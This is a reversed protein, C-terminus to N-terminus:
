RCFAAASILKKIKQVSASTLTFEGPKFTGGMQCRTNRYQMPSDHSERATAHFEKAGSVSLIKGINSENIGSGPMIIIRGDAKQILSRLLDLGEQATAEQGSTLIRETKLEILTELASVPDCTMDFARHFTVEMPRALEILRGTREKDINGEPNLIGTVVGNVGAQRCREIDLEMVKFEAETYCFDGARPRILVNVPISVNQKVLEIMGISPTLGGESLAACLELRGAGGEEAAMASEVSDVCAEFLIKDEM